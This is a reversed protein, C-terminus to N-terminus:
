FELPLLIFLLLSCNTEVIHRHKTKEVGNKHPTDSCSAQHITDDYALLEFFKNSTYEGFLM